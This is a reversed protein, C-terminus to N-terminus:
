LNVAERGRGAGLENESSWLESIGQEGGVGKERCLCARSNVGSVVFRLCPKDEGARLHWQCCFFAREAM